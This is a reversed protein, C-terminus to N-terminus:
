LDVLTLRCFDFFRRALELPKGRPLIHYSLADHSCLPNRTGMPSQVLVNKTCTEVKKETRFKCQAFCSVLLLIFFIHTQCWGNNRRYMRQPRQKERCNVLTDEIEGVEYVLWTTILFLLSGKIHKQWNQQIIPFVWKGEPHSKASNLGNAIQNAHIQIIRSVSRLDLRNLIRPEKETCILINKNSKEVKEVQPIPISCQM